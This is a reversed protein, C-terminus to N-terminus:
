IMPILPLKVDPSSELSEALQRALKEIKRADAACGPKDGFRFAYELIARWDAFQQPSLKWQKSKAETLTRCEVGALLYYPPTDRPPTPELEKFDKMYFWDNREEFLLMGGGIDRVTLVDGRGVHPNGVLAHLAEAKDGKTWTTM